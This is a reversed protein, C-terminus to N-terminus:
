QAESDSDKKKIFRMSAGIVLLSAAVFELGTGSVSAPVGTAAFVSFPFMLLMLVTIKM